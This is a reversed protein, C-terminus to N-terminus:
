LKLINKFLKVKGAKKYTGVEGLQKKLEELSPEKMKLQSPTSDIEEFLLIYKINEMEFM